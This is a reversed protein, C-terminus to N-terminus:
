LEFTAVIRSFLFRLYRKILEIRSKTISLEIITLACTFVIRLWIQAAGWTLRPENRAWQSHKEWSSGVQCLIIMCNQKFRSALLCLIIMHDQEWLIIMCDQEWRSAVLCLIIMFNHKWLKIMCDQEWLRVMCDQEWLITM